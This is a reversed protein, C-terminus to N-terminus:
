LDDPKGIGGFNYDGNRVARSEAEKAEPFKLHSREKDECDPCIMQTNFFSMTTVDTKEHCRDCLLVGPDARNNSGIM